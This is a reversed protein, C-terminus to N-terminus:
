ADKEGQYARETDSLGKVGAPDDLNGDGLWGGQVASFRVVAPGDIGDPHNLSVISNRIIPRVVTAHVGGGASYASNRAITCRDIM